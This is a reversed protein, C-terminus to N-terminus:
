LLTLPGLDSLSSKGQTPTRRVPLFATAAFALAAAISVWLLGLGATVQQDVLYFNCVRLPAAIYLWGVVAWMPAVNALVFGRGITHLRPWSLAIPAGVCLPLSVFKAIEVVPSALAADLARPLMWWASAILALMVGSVGRENWAGIREKWSQPISVAAIGGAVALLPIQLLMHTIMVRELAQRVVPLVLVAFLVASALLWRRSM